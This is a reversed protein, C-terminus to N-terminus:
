GKKYIQSIYGDAALSLDRAWPPCTTMCRELIEANKEAHQKEAIAIVEDHAHGCIAVGAQDALLMGHLLIDRAIAQVINETLKGGYTNIRGWTKTNQINGEHSIKLRTGGDWQKEEELQPRIYHLRRGSPLTIYLLKNPKIAGFVVKNTEQREGTQIAKIAANQYSDWCIKVSKYVERYAAVAEHAQEKSMEIGMNAAYGWLGTKIIDGDKNKEERGGSLQYGCGLTASKAIQREQKTIQDYPKNYLRSGFSIYPDLKERIIRAMEPDCSVYALVCYEIASLDRVIFIDEAGANLAGRLCSSVVDLPNGFQRVAAIDGSRIASVANDFHKVIEPNGRPLNQLQVSRGSWRGTRAAGYFVYQHRLRGDSNTFNKLAELKATSSKSLMQRLQLGNYGAESMGSGSELALTVWKAGMSNYCYGQTKVWELMQNRSNPNDLGTLEQLNKLIRSKEEEVLTIATDVFHLDVPIGFDNIKQDLWRGKREMNPLGFFNILKNDIAREAIVDRRNYEKYQEYEEPNTEETFFGGPTKKTAKHPISFMRILKKGVALKAEDDGLGLIQGVSELSGVISAYRANVKPDRWQEPPIDIGAKYKLLLREFDSEWAIKTAAENRLLVELKEPIPLTFTQPPADGIAFAGFLIETSKDRAYVSLGQTKIDIESRTELDIHCPLRNM